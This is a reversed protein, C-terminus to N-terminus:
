NKGSKKEWSLIADRAATTRETKEFTLIGVATDILKPDSKSHFESLKGLRILAGTLNENALDIIFWEFLLNPVVNEPGGYCEVLKAYTASSLDYKKLYSYAKANMFLAVALKEEDIAASKEFAKISEDYLRLSFSWSALTWWDDATAEASKCHARLADLAAQKLGKNWLEGAHASETSVSKALTSKAAEVSVSSAVSSLFCVVALSVSLLKRQTRNM